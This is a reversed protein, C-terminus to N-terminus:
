VSTWYTLPIGKVTAFNLIGVLDSDGDENYWFKGTSSEYIVNATSQEAKADALRTYAAISGFGNLEIRDTEAQTAKFDVIIDALVKQASSFDYDDANLIFTDEGKGGILTDKGAGGSIVDDGIGGTVKDNGAGANIEVGEASKIAIVNDGSLLVENLLVNNEAVVDLYQAEADIVPLADWEAVSMNQSFAKTMVSYDSTVFKANKLNMSVNDAEVDIIFGGSFQHSLGNKLDKFDYTSLKVTVRGGIQEQQVDDYVSNGSASIAFLYSYDANSFQTTSAEKFTGSSVGGQSVWSGEESNIFKYKFGEVASGGAGAYIWNLNTATTYSSSTWKDLFKASLNTGDLKGVIKITGGASGSQSEDSIERNQVYKITSGETSKFNVSTKAADPDIAQTNWTEDPLDGLTLYSAFDLDQFDGSIDNLWDRGSILQEAM